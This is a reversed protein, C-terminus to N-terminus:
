KKQTIHLALFLVTPFEWLSFLIVPFCTNTVATAHLVFHLCPTIKLLPFTIYNVNVNLMYCFELQSVFMELFSILFVFSFISGKGETKYKMYTTKNEMMADVALKEYYMATIIAITPQQNTAITPMQKM